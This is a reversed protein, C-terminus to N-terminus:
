PPCIRDRRQNPGDSRQKLHKKLIEADLRKLFNEDAEDHHAPGRCAHVMAPTREVNQQQKEEGNAARDM